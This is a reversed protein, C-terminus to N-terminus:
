AKAEHQKAELRYWRVAGMVSIATYVIFLAGTIDFGQVFYLVSYIVNSIFWCYWVEVYAKALLWMGVFSVSTAVADFLPFPSGMVSKYLLTLGSVLLATALLAIALERRPIRTIQPEGTEEKGRRRHWAIWGLVSAIVYYINVLVNGYVQSQWSIYIYFFPLVTGVPWLWMSARMELWLYLIGITAAVIEIIQM